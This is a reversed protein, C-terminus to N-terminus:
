ISALIFFKQCPAKKKIKFFYDFCIGLNLFACVNIKLSVRSDVPLEYEILSALDANTNLKVLSSGRNSSGSGVSM